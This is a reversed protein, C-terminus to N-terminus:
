RPTRFSRSGRTPAARPSRRTSRLWSLCRLSQGSVFVYVCSFVFCVLTTREAFFFFQLVVLVGHKKSLSRCGFDAVFLFDAKRSFLVGKKDCCCFALRFQSCTFGAQKCCFEKTFRGTLCRSYLVRRIPKCSVPFPVTWAVLSGVVVVVYAWKCLSSDSVTTTQM